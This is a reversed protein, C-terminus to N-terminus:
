QGGGQKKAGKAPAERLRGRSVAPCAPGLDNALRWLKRRGQAGACTVLEARALDRVFQKAAPATCEAHMMIDRITWAEGHKFFFRMVLWQDPRSSKRAM